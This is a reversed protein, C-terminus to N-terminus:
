LAPHSDQRKFFVTEENKISLKGLPFRGAQQDRVMVERLIDSVGPIYIQQM